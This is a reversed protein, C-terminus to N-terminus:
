IKFASFITQLYPAYTAEWLIEGPDMCRNRLFRLKRVVSQRVVFLQAM